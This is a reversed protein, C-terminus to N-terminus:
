RCVGNTRPALSFEYQFVVAFLDKIPKEQFGLSLVRKNCLGIFGRSSCFIFFTISRFYFYTLITVSLFCDLDCYSDGASLTVTEVVMLQIM